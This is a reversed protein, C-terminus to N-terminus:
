RRQFDIPLKTHCKDFIFVAFALLELRTLSDLFVAPLISADVYLLFEYKVSLSISSIFFSNYSLVVAKKYRITM